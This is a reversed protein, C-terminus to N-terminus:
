NSDSAGKEVPEETTSVDSSDDDGYDPEMAKNFQGALNNAAQIWLFVLGSLIVGLYQLPFFIFFLM